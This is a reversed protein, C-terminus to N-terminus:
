RPLLRDAYRFCLKILLLTTLTVAVTALLVEYLPTEARYLLLAGVPLNLTLGTILGPAYRRLMVTALLHPVFVNLMMMCVFGHFVPTAPSDPFAFRLATILFAETTVIILAFHFVESKVPAHFREAHKSWAPLWLAEELNHLSFGFLFLLELM